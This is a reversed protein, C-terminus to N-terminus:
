SVLSLLIYILTYRLDQPMGMMVAINNHEVDYLINILMSVFPCAGAAVLM